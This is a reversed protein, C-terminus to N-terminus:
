KAAADKAPAPGRGWGGGHKRGGDRSAQAADYEAKSLSGDNNSDADKFWQDRRQKGALDRDAKDVFGDKNADMQAFRGAFKPEAAAEAQSIRGDKDVDLKAFPHRDGGGHQPRPREDRDLKGDKNKDLTDFQAALRPHAAAESRDVVGDQNTDLPARTKAASAAPADSQALAAGTTVALLAAAILFPSKKV